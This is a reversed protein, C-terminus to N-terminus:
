LVGWVLDVEKSTDSFLFRNSGYPTEEWSVEKTLRNYKIMKFELVRSRKLSLTFVGEPNLTIGKQADWHGLLEDNGVLRLEENGKLPVLDPKLIISKLSPRKLEELRHNKGKKAFLYISSTKDLKILGEEVKYSKGDLLNVLETTSSFLGSEHLPIVQEQNSRTFIVFTSEEELHNLYAYLSDEVRYDERHGSYLSPWLNRLTTLQKIFKYSPMHSFNMNKRGDEGDIGLLHSETGYYLAPVGRIFYIFALAQHMSLPTAGKLSLFRAVDHNDIFTKLLVDKPFISEEYQLRSPLNKLSHNFAFVDRITYYLPYDYFANFGDRIFEFYHNPDGHLNEALFMFNKKGLKKTFDTIDAIYRKWFSHDIHKVADARIGDADLYQIWYKSYDLLIQYVEKHEQNLDPLGSVKGKTLQEPDNWDEISELSHFWEKKSKFWPHDYDVHNLVVDLIVKMKNKKVLEVFQLLTRDNFPPIEGRQRYAQGKKYDTFNGFHEDVLFYDKPWYGHFGFHGFFGSDRNDLLPSFLLTTTNLDKFHSFKDVVGKLDGGHYALKNTLDVDFNNTQDGDYFRDVMFFYIRDGEWSKKFDSSFATFVNLFIMLFLLEKM